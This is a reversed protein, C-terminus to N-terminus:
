GQEITSKDITSYGMSVIKKQIHPTLLYESLTKANDINYSSKLIVLQQTIPQHYTSPIIAGTLGNLLLQSYAVFGSNVAQTRVQTFTQNVNIGVVLGEKMQEWLGLYELVQKAAKGYPATKPNAIALRKQTLPSINQLDSLKVKNSMSFLALKGQAYTKRSNPIILGEQELWLPRLNDAAIFIDFPAGHQIQTFMAGTAGSIIQTKINTQQHFDVLLKKLTPTFNSSVAIRLPQAFSNEREINLQASNANNCFFSSVNILLISFLVWFNKVFTSLTM